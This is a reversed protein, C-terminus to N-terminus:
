ASLRKVVDEHIEEISREGQVELLVGKEKYYQLAPQTTEAFAALRTRIKDETNSDARNRGMM